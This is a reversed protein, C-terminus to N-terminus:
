TVTALAEASGGAMIALTGKEAAAAGGSIGADIFEVDRKEFAQHIATTSSPAATSLDVVIQGPRTSALLGGEEYVVSEIITSNPLSLFVVGAGNALNALSDALDIGSREGQGVDVDFGRVALGGDRIRRAIRGGMNGLGIM